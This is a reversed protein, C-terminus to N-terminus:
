IIERTDKSREDKLTKSKKESWYTYLTNFVFYLAEKNCKRCYNKITMQKLVKCKKYDFM